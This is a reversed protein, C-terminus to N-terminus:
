GALVLDTPSNGHSDENRIEWSISRTIQQVQNHICEPQVVASQISGIIQIIVAPFNVSM